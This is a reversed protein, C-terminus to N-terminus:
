LWLRILDAKRIGEPENDEPLVAQRHAGRLGELLDQLDLLVQPVAQGASQLLM